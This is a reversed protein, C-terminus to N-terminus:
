SRNLHLMVLVAECDTRFFALTFRRKIRALRHVLMVIRITTFGLAAAAIDHEKENEKREGMGKSFAM